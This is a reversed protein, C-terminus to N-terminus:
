SEVFHLIRCFFVSRQVCVMHSLPQLWIYTTITYQAFLQSLLQGRRTMKWVEWIKKSLAYHLELYLAFRLAFATCFIIYFVARFVAQNARQSHQLHRSHRGFLIQMFLGSLLCDLCLTMNRDQWTAVEGRVCRDFCDKICIQVSNMKTYLVGLQLRTHRRVNCNNVRIIVCAACINKNSLTIHSKTGTAM